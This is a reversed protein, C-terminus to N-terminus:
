APGPPRTADLEAMAARIFAILQEARDREVYVLSEEGLGSEQRIVIGGSESCFVEIEDQAPMKWAM